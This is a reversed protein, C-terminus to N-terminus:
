IRDGCLGDNGQDKSQSVNVSYCRQKRCMTKLISESQGIKEEVRHRALNAAYSRSAGIGRGHRTKQNQLTSFNIEFAAGFFRQATQRTAMTLPAM